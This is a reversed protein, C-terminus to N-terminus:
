RIKRRILSVICLRLLPKHAYRVISRLSGAPGVLSRGLVLGPLGVLSRCGPRARERNYGQGPKAVYSSRMRGYTAGCRPMKAPM